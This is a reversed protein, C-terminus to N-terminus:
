SREILVNVYIEQDVPRFANRADVRVKRLLFKTCAVVNSESTLELLTTAEDDMPILVYMYRYFPRHPPQNINVIATSTGNSVLKLTPKKQKMNNLM